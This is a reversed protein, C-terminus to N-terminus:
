DESHGIRRVQGSGVLSCRGAQQQLEARILARGEPEGGLQSQSYTSLSRTLARFLEEFDVTDLLIPKKGFISFLQAECHADPALPVFEIEGMREARRIEAIAAELADHDTAYGDSVVPCLTRFSRIAESQLQQRRRRTYEIVLLLATGLATLGGGAFKLPKEMYFPLPAYDQLMVLDDFVCCALEIRLRQIAPKVLTTVMRSWAPPLKHAHGAMSGSFDGIFAALARPELNDAEHCGPLVKVNPKMTQDFM